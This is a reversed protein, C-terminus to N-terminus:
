LGDDRQERRERSERRLQEVYEASDVIDTRHAWAGIEPAQAIEAATLGMGGTELNQLLRAIERDLDAEDPDGTTAVDSTAVELQIIVRVHGVPANHPLQVTLRGEADIEGDLLLTEGM